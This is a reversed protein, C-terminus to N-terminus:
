CCSLLGWQTCYLLVWRLEMHLLRICLFSRVSCSLRDYSLLCLAISWCVFALCYGGRVAGPIDLRTPQGGTALLVHKARLTRTGGSTLAVEVTNADVLRGRGEAAMVSLTCLVSICQGLGARDEDQDLKHTSHQVEVQRGVPVVHPAKVALAQLLQACLQARHHGVVQTFKSHSPAVALAGM